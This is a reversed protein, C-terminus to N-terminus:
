DPPETTGAEPNVDDGPQVENKNPPEPVEDADQEIDPNPPAPIDPYLRPDPERPNGEYKRM